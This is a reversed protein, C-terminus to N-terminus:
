HSKKVGNTTPTTSHFSQFFGYVNPFFIIVLYIAYLYAAIALTMFLDFIAPKVSSFFLKM